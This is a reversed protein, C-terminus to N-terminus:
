LIAIDTMQKQTLPTKLTARPGDIYKKLHRKNRLYEKGSDDKMILSKIHYCNQNHYCNQKVTTLLNNLYNPFLKNEKKTNQVVVKDGTNIEHPATKNKM